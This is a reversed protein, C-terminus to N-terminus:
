FQSKPAKCYSRYTHLWALGWKQELASIIGNSKLQQIAQTIEQTLKLNNKALCIGVGQTQEQAPLPLDLTKIQSFKTQFKKAIAPEVLAATAKRYQINLLADDVKEVPLQTIKPYHNLAHQQSSGPEVCVIQGALDQAVKINSPIQEWFILPYSTEPQGQYHVLNMKVQRDSTISMGWMIADIQNQGLAMLLTPMSGLDKFILDRNLLKALERAVDIDFGEYEGAANLSVWPAYGTAIGVTLIPTTPTPINNNQKILYFGGLGLCALTILLKSKFCLM